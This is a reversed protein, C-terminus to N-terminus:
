GGSAGIERKASILTCYLRISLLFCLVAMIFMMIMVSRMPYDLLIFTFCLSVAAKSVQLNFMLQTLLIQHYQVATHCFIVDQVYLRFPDCVFLLATFGIGMTVIKGWVHPIFSGFLSLAFSVCLIGALLIGSKEGSKAYLRSFVVSGLVRTVRSLILVAGIVLSTQEVDFSLFLHQQLFLKQNGQGIQALTFFLSYALIALIILKSYQLKHKPSSSQQTIVNYESHDAMFLSLLFGCSCAVICSIMPLYHNLNFLPSAILAILMTIVAYTTTGSTRVQIFDDRRGLVRLNNELSVFVVNTFIIAVDRLVQGAAVWYYDPGFTILLSAILLFFAGLRVAATNGIRQIVRLLPFQLIICSITSISTLSTIQAASLGKVVTLFLTDIAIYFLLDSTLGAFFPYIKIFRNIQREAM